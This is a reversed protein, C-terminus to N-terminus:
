IGWSDFNSIEVQIVDEGRRRKRGTQGPNSWGVVVSFLEERDPGHINVSGTNVNVSVVGKLRGHHVHVGVVADNSGRM